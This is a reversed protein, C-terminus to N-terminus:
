QIFEARLGVPSGAPGHRFIKQGNGAGPRQRSARLDM